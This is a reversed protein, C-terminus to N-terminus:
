ESWPLSPMISAVFLHFGPFVDIFAIDPIRHIILYTFVPEM